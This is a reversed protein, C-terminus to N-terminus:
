LLSRETDRNEPARGIVVGTGVGDDPIGGGFNPLAKVLVIGLRSTFGFEADRQRRASINGLKV